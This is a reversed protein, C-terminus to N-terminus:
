KEAGVPPVGVGKGDGRVIALICFPLASSLYTIDYAPSFLGWHSTSYMNHVFTIGVIAVLMLASNRYYRKVVGRHTMSLFIALPLFIIFDLPNGQRTQLKWPSNQFYYFEQWDWLAFPLFTLLFVSGTLLLVGIQSRGSLRLFFPFLLLAIPVLVLLRTSALLGVACAIWWRNAEIWEHCLRPQVLNIFAVVLLVNTMLDSRVAVEYWVAVSSCLLLGVVVAKDKGYVRCCSWLFFATAVFFSLGVNGMLYFPVHLIQWVPFPSAYGGLHTTATYPYVGSLLNQIPFHLASWRDVQLEYPDVVYQAMLMGVFATLCGIMLLKFGGFTQSSLGYLSLVWRLLIFYFVISALTAFFAVVVSVRASYKAVFLVNVVVFMVEEVNLRKSM